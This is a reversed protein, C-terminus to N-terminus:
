ELLIIYIMWVGFVVAYMISAIGFKYVRYHFGRGFFRGEWNSQNAFYQVIWFLLGGSWLWGLIYFIWKWGSIPFGKEEKSM